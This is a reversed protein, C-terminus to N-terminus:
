VGIIIYPQLCLRTREYFLHQEKEMYIEKMTNAITKDSKRGRDEHKENQFGNVAEDL